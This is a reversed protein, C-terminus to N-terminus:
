RVATLEGGMLVIGSLTSVVRYFCFALIRSFSAACFAVLAATSTTIARMSRAHKAAAWLAAVAAASFRV